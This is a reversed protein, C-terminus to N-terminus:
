ATAAESIRFKRESVVLCMRLEPETQNRMFMPISM